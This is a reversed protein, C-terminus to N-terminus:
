KILCNLSPRNPRDCRLTYTRPISKATAWSRQRSKTARNRPNRAPTGAACRPNHCPDHRLRAACKRDGAWRSFLVPPGPGANPSSSERTWGVCQGGGDRRVPRGLSEGRCDENLAAGALERRQQGIFRPRKGREFRGFVPLQDVVAAIDAQTNANGTHRIAAFRSEDHRGIRSSRDPEISRLLEDCQLRTSGSGKRAWWKHRRGIVSPM